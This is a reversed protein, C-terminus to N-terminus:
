NIEGVCVIVYEGVDKIEFPHMNEDRAVKRVREYTEKNDMDMVDVTYGYYSLYTELKYEYAFHGGYKTM